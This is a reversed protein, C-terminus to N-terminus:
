KNTKIKKTDTLAQLMATGHANIIGVSTLLPCWIAQTLMMGDHLHQPGLEPGRCSCFTNEVVSDDRWGWDFINKFVTVCVFYYILLFKLFTFVRITLLAARVTCGTLHFHSKEECAQCCWGFSVILLCWNDLKGGDGTPVIGILWRSEHVLWSVQWCAQGTCPQWSLVAASKQALEQLGLHLLATEHFM